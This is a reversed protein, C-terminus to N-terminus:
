DKSSQFHYTNKLTLDFKGMNKVWDVESPYRSLEKYGQAIAELARDNAHPGSAQFSMMFNQGTTHMTAYALEFFRAKVRDLSEILIGARDDLSVNKWLRAASAKSILEETSLKPYKVGIGTQMFPSVEDGVWTDSSVGLEDFNQNMKASFTTRGEENLEPAYARPHEPYPTYFTRNGIAEIAANLTDKHNTYLSM